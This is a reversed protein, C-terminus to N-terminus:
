FIRSIKLFTEYLGDAIGIIKEYDKVRRFREPIGEIGVETGKLAGAIAAITDTDGGASAAKVVAQEFTKSSFYCYFALPVSDFAMISNGIEKVARELSSTRIQYAYEIKEAVLSDYKEARKVVEEVGREDENLITAIGVAVAVSAAIAGSGRHTISSAIVAYDEVLNYNHHYVLGIPPSRMASGNTDSELGSERWSVGRRLNAIAKSSTPGYRHSLEIRKLRNAFDEPSFYTTSIISETLILAQETDDTWEGERLGDESAMFSDVSGFRRRIEDFDMGEVPMGLADGAALGLMCGRFNSRM